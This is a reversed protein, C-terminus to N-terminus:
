FLNRKSIFKVNLLLIFFCCTEQFFSVVIFLYVWCNKFSNWFIENYQKNFAHSYFEFDISLKYRESVIFCYDGVEKETHPGTWKKINSTQEIYCTNFGTGLIMGIGCRHDLFSGQVLTGLIDLDTHRTVQSKM